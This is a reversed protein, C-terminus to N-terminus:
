MRVSLLVVPTANDNIEYKIGIESLRDRVKKFLVKNM